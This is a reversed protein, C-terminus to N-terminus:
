LRVAFSMYAWVHDQPFATKAQDDPHVPVEWYGCRLDLTSFVTSNPLQDQVDDPLPLPYADQSLKSQLRCVFPYRWIKEFLCKILLLLKEPKATFLQQFDQIVPQLTVVSCEPLEVPASNPVVPISYNDVDEYNPLSM